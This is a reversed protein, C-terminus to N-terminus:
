ENALEESYFYEIQQQILFALYNNTTRVVKYRNGQYDYIIADFDKYKHEISKFQALVLENNATKYHIYVYDSLNYYIEIMGREKYHNIVKDLM